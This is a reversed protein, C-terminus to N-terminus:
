VISSPCAGSGTRYEDEADATRRPRVIDCSDVEAQMSLVLGPRGSAGGLMLIDHESLSMSQLARPM